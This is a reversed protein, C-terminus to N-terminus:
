KKGLTIPKWWKKLKLDDAIVNAVCYGSAGSCGAITPGLPGAIYLREVPTRYPPIDSRFPRANLMQDPLNGCMMSGQLMSINGRSIDLPTYPLMALVNDSTLNPAAKQWASLCYQAYDDKIKDWNQAGSEKLNYPGGKHLNLCAYNWLFTTAKGPPAQSPDANTCTCTMGGVLRPPIGKRIDNYQDQIDDCTDFGFTVGVTGELEPKKDIAKWRPAENLCLHLTFMGIECGKFREIQRIIDDTLYEKGLLEFFFQKPGAGCGVAEKAKIETGDQLKVGVARGGEVLIKEVHANTIVKGGKAELRNKMGIALNGSGGICWGIGSKHLLPYMLCFISGSGYRDDMLGAQSAEMCMLTRLADSEFKEEVLTRINTSMARLIERGQPTSELLAFRESEKLPPAFFMALIMESVELWEKIYDRYEKADKKSYFEIEKCMREIDQWHIISNGDSFVLAILQEQFIYKAGWKDLELDRYVPGQHIWEHITSHLNHKFGPITKITRPTNYPIDLCDVLKKQPPPPYEVGAGDITVAGGGIYPLREICICKLGCDALYNAAAM